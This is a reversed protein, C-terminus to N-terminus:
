SKENPVCTEDEERYAECDAQTRYNCQLDNTGINKTCWPEVGLKSTLVAVALLAITM